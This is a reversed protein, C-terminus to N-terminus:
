PPRWQPGTEGPFTLAGGWLKPGAEAWLLHGLVSPARSLQLPAARLGPGPAGASSGESLLGGAGGWLQPSCWQQCHWQPSGQPTPSFSSSPDLIEEEGVSPGLLRRERSPLLPQLSETCLTEFHLGLLFSVRGVSPSLPWSGASQALTLAPPVCLLRAGLGSASWSSPALGQPPGPHGFSCCPAQAM